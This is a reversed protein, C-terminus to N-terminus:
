SVTWQPWHRAFVPAVGPDADVRALTHAFGPAVASLAERAADWRSVAAAMIGLANPEGNHAFLQEAFQEAFVVWAQHLYRRTGCVLQAQVAEPAEGLWRQPYDIIGIASYCNAAIYVLGRIIQARDGSPADPLGLIAAFADRQWQQLHGDGWREGTDLVLANLLRWCQAATEETWISKM